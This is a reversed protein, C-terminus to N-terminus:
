EGKRKLWDQTAADILKSVGQSGWWGLVRDLLTFDTDESNKRGHTALVCLQFGPVDNRPHCVFGYFRNHQSKERWKFTFCGKYDANNPWGHFRRDNIGYRMWLDFSARLYRRRDGDEKEIAEFVPYADANPEDKLILFAVARCDPQFGLGSVYEVRNPKKAAM